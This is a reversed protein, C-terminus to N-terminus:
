CGTNVSFMFGQITADTNLSQVPRVVLFKTAVDLVMIFYSGQFEFNDLSILTWVKVQADVAYPERNNQQM